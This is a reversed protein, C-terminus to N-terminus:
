GRDSPSEEEHIGQVANLLTNIRTSLGGLEDHDLEFRLEEEGNIVRLLGDELEGVPRSIYNGLVVSTAFVLLLGLGGVAFVPWLSDKISPLVSRPLAVALVARNSAYSLLPAAALLVDGDNTKGRAIAGPRARKAVELTARDSFIGGLAGGQAVPQGDVLLALDGGSVMGATKAMREDNLPTGVVVGGLPAGTEGMVPAFSVLMQEQRQQSVWVDSGTQGRSLWDLLTPYAEGIPDGRM